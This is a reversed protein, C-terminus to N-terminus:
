KKEPFIIFIKSNNAYIMLMDKVFKLNNKEVFKEKDVCKKWRQTFTQTGTTYFEKSFGGLEKLV